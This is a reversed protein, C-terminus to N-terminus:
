YSFEGIEGLRQASIGRHEVPLVQIVEGDQRAGLRQRRSGTLQLHFV